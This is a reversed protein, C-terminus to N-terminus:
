NVQTKIKDFFCKLKVFKRDLAQKVFFLCMKLFKKFHNYMQINMTLILMDSLFIYM